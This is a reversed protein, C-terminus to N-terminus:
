HFDKTINSEGSMDEEKSNIRKKSTIVMKNTTILLM